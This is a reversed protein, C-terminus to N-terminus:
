PCHTHMHQARGHGSCHVHGQRQRVACLKPHSDHASARVDGELGRAIDVRALYQLERTTEPSSSSCMRAAMRTIIIIMM